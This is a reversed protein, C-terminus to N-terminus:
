PTLLDPSNSNLLSAYLPTQLLSVPTCPSSLQPHMTPSCIWAITSGLQTVKTLISSRGGNKDSHFNSTLPTESVINSHLNSSIVSPLCKAGHKSSSVLRYYFVVITGKALSQLALAARSPSSSSRVYDIVSPRTKCCGTPPSPGNLVVTLTM